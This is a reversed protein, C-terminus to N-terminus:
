SSEVACTRFGAWIDRRYPKYFNRLSNRVHRSRTVWCGGRLIKHDGFWPKSYEKYPGIVFGPYPLFDDATWEWVNGIMQRCGFASDGEVRQTVDVTGMERWGLNARSPNPSESGWPFRRKETSLRESLGDRSSAAATEWEAETPLRRKAWRCYANAEYWNIHLVPRHPELPIWQDFERRQWLGNSEPKWYVPHDANVSERWKWGDDSWLERRRYGGDEVFAVFEEQTVALRSIAFPVIEVPHAWQENDFTFPETDNRVKVDKNKTRSKEGNEPNKEGWIQYHGVPMTRLAPSSLTRFDQPRHDSKRDRWRLYYVSYGDLTFNENSKVTAEVASDYRQKKELADAKMAADEQIDQFLQYDAESFMGADGASLSEFITQVDL